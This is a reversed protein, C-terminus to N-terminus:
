IVVDQHSSIRGPRTMTRTASATVENPRVSCCRSSPAARHGDDGRGRCLGRLLAGSPPVARGGMAPLGQEGHLVQPHGEAVGLHHLPDREGGVWTAAQRDDALGAGALADGCAGQDPERTPVGPDRGVPDLEAAGVQAREALSGPAPDTALLDAEHQLVCQDREVLQPPDSGLDGLRELQMAPSVAPQPGLADDLQQGGDAYGLRLHTGPLARVLEGAPQPLAREDGRRDGEVRLQQDGVLRGGGEVHGHLRLDEVQQGLGLLAPRRDDQDAVIERHHGPQGVVDGHHAVALDDLV